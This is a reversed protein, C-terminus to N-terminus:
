MLYSRFIEKLGWHWKCMTKMYYYCPFTSIPLFGISQHSPHIATTEVSTQTHTCAFKQTQTCSIHLYLTHIHNCTHPNNIYLYNATSNSTQIPWKVPLLIDLHLSLKQSLENNFLKGVFLIFTDTTQYITM